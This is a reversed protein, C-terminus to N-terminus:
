KKIKLNKSIIWVSLICIHYNVLKGFQVIESIKPIKCNPFNVFKDIKKM